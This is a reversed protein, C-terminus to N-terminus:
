REHLSESVHQILPSLFYEIVRRQATKIEATVTMGPALKVTKGEVQMSHRKLLIKASYILGRKEDQIADLSVSQVKGEILGYKTYNFTEIKVAADQGAKVFGIDKNELMAEAELADEKPVIVMLAQAETVVGGVTHIALQQVLGSVPAVLRTQKQLQKGKVVEQAFSQTKERAVVLADHQSRRFEAIAAEKQRRNTNLGEELEESKRRQIALDQETEIRIQEKGLYEHKAVISNQLLDKYDAALGTVIPLTQELKRVQERIGAMESKKRATDSDITSLKAQLEEWQSVAQHKTNSLKLKCVPDNVPIESDAPLSPLRNIQLANLLSQARLIDLRADLWASFNKNNNASAITSDLEILLQGAEVYQGDKVHIFKVVGVELPQIVKSRDSIILHGPAVAVVDIKGFFSWLLAILLFAMFLWVFVRSAPHPPSDQLELTAPLFVREHELREAATFEKRVLWAAKLSNWYRHLLETFAQFRM